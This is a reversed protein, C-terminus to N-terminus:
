SNVQAERHLRAALEDMEWQERRAGRAREQEVYNAELKDLVRSEGRADVWHQRQREYASRFREVEALQQQVAQGLKSIFEQRNRLLSPSMAGQMQAQYEAQYQRLDSLRQEQQELAKKQKAFLAAAENERSEALDRLPKLRETNM